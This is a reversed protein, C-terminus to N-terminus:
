REASKTRHPADEWGQIENNHHAIEERVLREPYVCRAHCESGQPILLTLIRMEVQRCPPQLLSSVPM